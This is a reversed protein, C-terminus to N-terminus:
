TITLLENVAEVLARYNNDVSIIHMVPLLEDEAVVGLAVTAQARALDTTGTKDRMLKNLVDIATFDGIFGLALAASSQVYETKADEIVKSLVHVVDKDGMLGLATAAARQLEPDKVQEKVVEKIQPIAARAGMMGLAVAAYGRLSPSNRGMMLSVLDSEAKRERIIGLAIAMAGKVRQDKVKKPQKLLLDSAIGPKGANFNHLYGTVNYGTKDRACPAVTRLADIHTESEVRVVTAGYTAMHSACIPGAGFWSFDAVKVGDLAAKM